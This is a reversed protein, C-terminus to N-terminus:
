DCFTAHHVETPVDVPATGLAARPLSCRSLLRLTKHFYDFYAYSTPTLGFPLAMLAM